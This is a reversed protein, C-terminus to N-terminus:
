GDYDLVKRVTTALKELTVPKMLFGKVGMGKFRREDNEDSFGTCIIIPIEPRIAILEGALQEGSMNPMGRDSIVLDFGSPNAKFAALADPSSTRVTIQYGLKELMMQEMLAIPEEDDVLLISECGTPYRLSAAAAKGDNAGELLPLYVNFTTGKGIESYVRIDGGHQKVIGHVVSLGLGTGKGQPKTTFYPEFIKHILEPDIGPGTDSITICAYQGSKMIRDFLVAEDFRAEELGIEIAGGNEEVAHYANTILNMAIQHVQVPDASVMGCDPNIRSTIEINIPITARFLSLVEKLIPQIRIPLKRPNSQRSFALIQKVLDSGRRASKLIQDLSERSPADAPIEDLLMESLGTIPFLINNLDHAIGGALSGISEMKQAQQLRAELRAKEQEAQKRESIDMFTELLVPEGNMEIEIVSKLIPIERGDRRRLIRESNDVEQHKDLIPCANELASCLYAECEKGILDAADAAGALESVYHNVWRIKRDRGIVAVGFPSRELITKLVTHARILEQEALNRAKVMSNASCALHQLEAYHMAGPDITKQEYGAKEFFTTFADLNKKTNRSVYLTLVFLFAVIGALILSIKVLDVAIGQEMEKKKLAVAADIEDIYIGTGVYWKWEPIGVAYSLKPAPKKDQFKPMVYELYGSGGKALRIMEQVIKTGNSDTVERMNRDKAPRTLSVGDWRGVFVYGDEGFRLKEIFEIVEKQIDSEVDDLYEGTGLGWGFPAFLKVFAIKPFLGEQNPKTWTYRYFGEGKSTVIDLMDRVVYEGAAGQVPLMDQQEMESKGGYLVNIGELNFAFYYGRGKYFRIPRLADKVMDQIEAKTRKDRYQNFINLAVAHAENVRGEISQRLRPEVRAKQYEIYSIATDVQTKLLNKYNGLYRDRMSKSEALFDSYESQIWFFGLLGTSFITALLLYVTIRLSLKPKDSKSNM